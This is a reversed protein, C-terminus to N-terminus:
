LLCGSTARDLRHAPALGLRTAADEGPRRASPTTAIGAPKDVVVWGDAEALVEIAVEAVAAPPRALIPVVDGAVLRRSAKPSAGSGLAVREALAEQIATRSMRPLMQQLFRDLRMGRFAGTVPYQEAVAPM